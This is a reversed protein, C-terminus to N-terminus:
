GLVQTHLYGDKQKIQCAGWLGRNTLAARSQLLAFEDLLSFRFSLMAFGYGQRVLEKNLMQGGPLYVYRLLREYKDRNTGKDDAVLKVQKGSVQSKTFNTAEVGYCQPGFDPHHTEPTDVGILRIKETNGDMNVAITDGDFVTVVTYSDGSAVFSYSNLLLLVIFLLLAGLISKMGRVKTKLLRTLLDFFTKRM